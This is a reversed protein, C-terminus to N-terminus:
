LLHRQAWKKDRWFAKLFLCIQPAWFRFLHTPFLMIPKQAWRGHAQHNFWGMQFISSLNYWEGPNRPSIWFLIDLFITEVVMKWPNRFSGFSFSVFIHDVGLEGMVEKQLWARAVVERGLRSWHPADNWTGPLFRRPLGGWCGDVWPGTMSGLARLQLKLNRSNKTMFGMVSGHSHYIQGFPIMNWCGLIERLYGPSTYKGIWSHHIETKMYTFIGNTGHIRHSHIFEEFHKPYLGKLFMRPFKAM